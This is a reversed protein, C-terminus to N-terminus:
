RAGAEQRGTLGANVTEDCDPKRLNRFRSLRRARWAAGKRGRQGAFRAEGRRGGNKARSSGAARLLEEEWLPKDFLYGQALSCGSAALFDAQERTEVGEALATVKLSNALRIIAVAIEMSVPDRPIDQVFGRDLKLKDIPFRRLYFLSSHGAGFDDIALRM